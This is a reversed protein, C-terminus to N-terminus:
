WKNVVKSVSLRVQTGLRKQLWILTKYMQMRAPQGETFRWDTRSEDTPYFWGIRGDQTTHITPGSNYDNLGYLMHQPHPSQMGKAGTGFEVYVVAEGEQVIQYGNPTKKWYTNAELNGSQEKCYAVAEDLIKEIDKSMELDKKMQKLDKIAKQIDDTNLGIKRTKEM